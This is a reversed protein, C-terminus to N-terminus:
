EPLVQHSIELPLVLPYFFCIFSRRDAMYVGSSPMFRCSFSTLRVRHLLKCITQTSRYYNNATVVLVQTKGEVPQSIPWFRTFIICPFSHILSINWSSTGWPLSQDRDINANFPVENALTAIPTFTSAWSPVCLCTVLDVCEITSKVKGTGRGSDADRVCEEVEILMWKFQVQM